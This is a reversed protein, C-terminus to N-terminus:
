LLNIEKQRRIIQQIALICTPCMQDTVVPLRAKFTGDQNIWRIVPRDDGQTFIYHEGCGICICEKNTISEVPMRAMDKM